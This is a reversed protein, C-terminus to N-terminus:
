RSFLSQFNLSKNNFMFCACTVLFNPAIPTCDYPMMQVKNSIKNMGM